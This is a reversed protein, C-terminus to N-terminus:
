KNLNVDLDYITADLEDNTWCGWFVKMGACEASDFINRLTEGNFEKMECNWYKALKKLAKIMIAASSIGDTDFHSIIEIQRDKTVELFKKAIKAIESELSNQRKEM